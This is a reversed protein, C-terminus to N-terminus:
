RTAELAAAIRALVVTVAGLAAFSRVVTIV